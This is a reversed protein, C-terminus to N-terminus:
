ATNGRIFLGRQCERCRQRHQHFDRYVESQQATGFDGRDLAPLGGPFLQAHLGLSQANELLAMGGAAGCGIARPCSGYTTM